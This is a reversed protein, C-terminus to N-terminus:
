LGWSVGGLVKVLGESCQSVLFTCVKDWCVNESPKDDGLRSYGNIWRRWLQVIGHNCYIHVLFCNPTSRKEHGPWLFHWMLAAAIISPICRPSKLQVLAVLFAKSWSRSGWVDAGKLCRRLWVLTLQCYLRQAWGKGYKANSRGIVPNAYSLGWRPGMSMGGKWLEILSLRPLGRPKTGTGVQTSNESVPTEQM